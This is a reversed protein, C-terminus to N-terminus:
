RTSKYAVTGNALVTMNTIYNNLLDTTPVGHGTSYMDLMMSSTGNANWFAMDTNLMTTGYGIAIWSGPM